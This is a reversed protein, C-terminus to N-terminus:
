ALGRRSFILGAEGFNLWVGFDMGSLRSAELGTKMKLHLFITRSSLYKWPYFQQVCDWGHRDWLGILGQRSYFVWHDDIDHPWWKGLLRQSLSGSIPLVVLAEAGAKTMHSIRALHEDPELLHEFSDLYLVVDFASGEFGSLEATVRDAEIGNAIAHARNAAVPEVGYARAGLSEVLNLTAGAGFGIELIAKGAVPPTLRTLWLQLTVRKAHAIAEEAHGRGEPYADDYIYGRRKPVWVTGCKVCHASAGKPKARTDRCAPCSGCDTLMAPAIVHGPARRIGETKSGPRAPSQRPRAGVKAKIDM